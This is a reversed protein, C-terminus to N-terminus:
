YQKAPALREPELYLQHSDTSDFCLQTPADQAKDNIEKTVILVVIQIVALIMVLFNLTQCRM